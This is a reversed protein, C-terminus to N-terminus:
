SFQCLGNFNFISKEPIFTTDLYGYELTQRDTNDIKHNYNKYSVYSTNREYTRLNEISVIPRTIHKRKEIGALRMDDTRELHIYDNFTEYTLRKHHSFHMKKWLNLTFEMM